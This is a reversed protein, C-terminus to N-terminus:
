IASQQNFQPMKQLQPSSSQNLRQEILKSIIIVLSIYVYLMCRAGYPKIFHMPAISIISSMFIFLIKKDKLILSLTVFLFCYLFGSLFLFEKIMESITYGNTRSFLLTFICIILSITNRQKNKKQWVTFIILITLTLLIIKMQSLVPVTVRFLGTYFYYWITHLNLPLKRYSSLESYQKYKNNILLMICAGILSSITWIIFPLMYRRKKLAYFMIYFSVLLIMLSMHEVFLQNSISCITLATLDLISLYKKGKNYIKLIYLCLFFLLIPPFYNSFGSTWTLTEDFLDGPMIFFAICTWCRAPVSKIEFLVWSLIIIGTIILAKALVRIYIYKCLLMSVINGLIRGNGYHLAEIYISSSEKKSLALFNLDDVVSLPTIYAIISIYIFLIALIIFSINKNRNMILQVEKLYEYNYKSITHHM